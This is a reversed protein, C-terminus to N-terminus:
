YPQMERLDYVMVFKAMSRTLGFLRSQAIACGDVMMDEMEDAIINSRDETVDSWCADAAM